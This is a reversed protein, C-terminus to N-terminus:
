AGLTEALVDDIFIQDVPNIPANHGWTTPIVRLEAGPILSAEHASDVPPFYRDTEAQVIVTRARVSGLAAEFDGGFLPHRGVDNSRWTDMQALLDNADCKLFFPEWFDTMFEQLDCSGLQRFERNRYFPESFAWGSIIAALTRLGAVPAHEYYGGKFAPDSTLARVNAELFTEAYIACRAAGNIPVVADMADPYMTAWAYAQCAGMSWGTVLRVRDVGLEEVLLRRQAAVNDHVTVRPFRAREFPEPTNSPSSSLGAGFHGPIVIFYKDPDLARHPGTMVAEVDSPSATFWTPCVVVNDKADNLTGLTSYGLSAGPLVSGRQLQVDGLEFFHHTAM